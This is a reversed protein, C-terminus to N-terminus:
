VNTKAKFRLKLEPILIENRIYLLTETDLEVLSNDNWANIKDFYDVTSLIEFKTGIIRLYMTSYFNGTNFMTVHDVVKGLGIGNRSKDRVTADSYFPGYKGFIPKDKGTKGKVAMQGRVLNIITESNQELIQQTEKIVDFSEIALIKRYTNALPM